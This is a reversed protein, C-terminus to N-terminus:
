AQWTTSPVTSHEGRIRPHDKQRDKVLQVFGTNGAFAPIIGRLLVGDFELGRTGRSHPSSGASSSLFAASSMHEGRIRPHDRLRFAFAPSTATNGAFAPIIGETIDTLGMLIPTGRSHPSSGEYYKGKNSEWLHEGRIRPHDRFFLM